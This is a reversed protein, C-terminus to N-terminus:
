KARGTAPAAAQVIAAQVADCFRLRQENTVAEQELGDIAGDINHKGLDDDDLEWPHKETDCTCGDDIVRLILQRILGLGHGDLQGLSAAGRDPPQQKTAQRVDEDCPEDSMLSTIPRAM